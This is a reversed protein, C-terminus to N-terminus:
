LLVLFFLDPIHVGAGFEEGNISRIGVAPGSRDWPEGPGHGAWESTWRSNYKPMSGGAFGDHIQWSYCRRYSRISWTSALLGLVNQL